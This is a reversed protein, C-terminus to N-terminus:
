LEKFVIKHNMLNIDELTGTVEVSEGFLGRLIYTQKDKPTVAAVNEMVMEEQNNKIIYATSECM